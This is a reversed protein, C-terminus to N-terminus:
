TGLRDILSTRPYGNVFCNRSSSPPAAHFVGSAAYVHVQLFQVPHQISGTLRRQALRIVAFEILRQMCQRRHQHPRAIRLLGTRHHLLRFVRLFILARRRERSMASVSGFCKATRSFHIDLVLLQRM